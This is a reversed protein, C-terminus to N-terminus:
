YTAHIPKMRTPKQSLMFKSSPSELTAFCMHFTLLSGVNLCISVIVLINYTTIATVIM